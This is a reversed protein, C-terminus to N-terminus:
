PSNLPERFGPEEDEAVFDFSDIALRNNQAGIRRLVESGLSLKTTSWSLVVLVSVAQGRREHANGGFRLNASGNSADWGRRKCRQRPRKRLFSVTERGYLTRISLERRPANASKRSAIAEARIAFCSCGDARIETVSRAM